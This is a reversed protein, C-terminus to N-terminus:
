RFVLVPIRCARLMATTTSGVLLTRIRSHGYAGMVLLDIEVAGVHAAIAQEPEGHLTQATVTLGGRRLLEAPQDLIAGAGGQPAVTVLHCELGRLAAQRAAFDVAKLAAPGGDYAILFRRIPRFARSAVLVPRASARVVRELNAGLHGIAFDAAEGRKGIVILDAGAEFETVTEVLSGHRQTLVVEAVGAAKLRAEAAALLVRARRIAVRGRAADLEALERLLEESADFGLTGSRDAPTEATARDLVHLVQVVAGGLQQAAWAAHDYVSDAYISGDTCALIGPM